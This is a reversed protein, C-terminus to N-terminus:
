AWKYTIMSANHNKHSIQISHDLLVNIVQYIRTKMSQIACYNMILFIQCCTQMQSVFSVIGHWLILTNFHFMQLYKQSHMAPLPFFFGRVLETLLLDKSSSGTTNHMYKMSNRNSAPIWPKKEEWSLSTVKCGDSQQDNHGNNNSSSNSSESQFIASNWHQQLQMWFGKGLTHSPPM